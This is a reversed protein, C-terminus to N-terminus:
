RATPSQETDEHKEEIRRAQVELLLYLLKPDSPFYPDNQMQFWHLKMQNIEEDTLRM